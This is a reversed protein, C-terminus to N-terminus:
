MSRRMDAGGQEHFPGPPRVVIIPPSLALLPPTAPCSDNAPHAGHTQPKFLDLIWRIVASLRTRAIERAGIEAIYPANHQM